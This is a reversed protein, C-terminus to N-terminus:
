NKALCKQFILKNSKMVENVNLQFKEQDDFNMQRSLMKLKKKDGPLLATTANFIVQNCMREPVKKKVNTWVNLFFRLNMTSCTQIM